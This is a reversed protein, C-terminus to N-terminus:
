KITIKRQEKTKKAKPIEVTLVGNKLEAEIGDKDVNSLTYTYKFENSEVDKEKKKGQVVLTKDVVEISVEEKDYGPIELRLTWSEEKETLKEKYDTYYSQAWFDFGKANGYDIKNTFNLHNKLTNSSRSVFFM